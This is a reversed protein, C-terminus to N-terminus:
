VQGLLINLYISKKDLFINSKVEFVHDLLLM